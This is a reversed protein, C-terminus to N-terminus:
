LTEFWRGMIRRPKTLVKCDPEFPAGSSECKNHRVRLVHQMLVLPLKWGLLVSFLLVGATVHQKLSLTVAPFCHYIFFFSERPPNVDIQSFTASLCTQGRPLLTWYTCSEHSYYRFIQFVQRQAQPILQYSTQGKIIVFCKDWVQYMCIWIFNYLEMLKTMNIKYVKQVTLYASM